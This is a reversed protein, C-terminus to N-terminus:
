PLVVIGRMVEDNRQYNRESDHDDAVCSHKYSEPLVPHSSNPPPPTPITKQCLYAPKSVYM